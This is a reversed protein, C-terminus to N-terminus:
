NKSKAYPLYTGQLPVSVCSYEGEVVVLVTLFILGRCPSPFTIPEIRYDRYRLLSSLDGALPRFRKIMYLEGEIDKQLSSLDGALPRFGDLLTEKIYKEADYPLYTGQLPVSVHTENYWCGHNNSRLSSLDGALPRFCHISSQEIIGIVQLSSLDGALPRFRM